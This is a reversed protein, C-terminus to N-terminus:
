AWHRHVKIHVVQKAVSMEGEILTFEVKDGERLGDREFPDFSSSHFFVVLGDAGEISGWEREANFWKIRGQMPDTSSHQRRMTPANSRLLNIVFLAAVVALLLHVANGGLKYGYALLWLVLLAMIAIWLM